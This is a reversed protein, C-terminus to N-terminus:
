MLDPCSYSELLYDLKQRADKQAKVRAELKLALSKCACPVSAVLSVPRRGRTYRAGGAVLGNHQALRRELNSTIGCYLSGDRCRLLYVHWILGFIRRGALCYALIFFALQGAELALYQFSRRDDDPKHGARQWSRWFARSFFCLRARGSIRVPFSLGPFPDPYNSAGPLREPGCQDLGAM